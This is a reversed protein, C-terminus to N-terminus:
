NSIKSKIIDNLENLLDGFDLKDGCEDPLSADDLAGACTDCVCNKIGSDISAGDRAAYFCSSDTLCAKSIGNISGGYAAAFFCSSDGLCAKNIGNIYGYGRAAQYCAYEGKCSKISAINGGKKPFPVGECASKGHCSHEISGIGPGYAGAYKCM